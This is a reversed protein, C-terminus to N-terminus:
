GRTSTRNVVQSTRKRRSTSPSSATPQGRQRVHDILGCFSGEGNDPAAPTRKELAVLEQRLQHLEELRRDIDSIEESILGRVYGCPVQGRERLALIEGVEDLALGLRQASKIFVLREVDAEEYDRYGSETRDPEPLLGISEYYRITKTNIGLREALEGIRM